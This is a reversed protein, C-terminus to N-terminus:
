AKHGYSWTSLDVQGPDHLWTDGALAANGAGAPFILLYDVEELWDLVVVVNKYHWAGFKLCNESTLGSDAGPCQRSAQHDATALPVRAAASAM